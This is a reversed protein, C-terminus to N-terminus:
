LEPPLFFNSTEYILNEDHLLSTFKDTPLISKLSIKVKDANPDQVYIKELNPMNSFIERDVERNFFPFTYGIIVLIEADSINKYLMGSMEDFKEKEWAFLLDTTGGDYIGNKTAASLQVLIINNILANINNHSIVMTDQHNIGYFNASGNIKYVRSQPDIRRIETPVVMSLGMENYERFAIDLQVDYNWTMVFIDNPLALDKNLINALFTDYRKDYPHLNQEIFFFSSLLFKLRGYNNIDNKLYLKKAFTDITAHRSSERLLWEFGDILEEKLADAGCQVGRLKFNGDNLEVSDIKGIVCNLEDNIENVVPLGEMIYSVDDMTMDEPKVRKGYSAGAGLLYVIKSM